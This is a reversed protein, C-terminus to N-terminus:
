RCMETDHPIHINNRGCFFQLQDMAAKKFKLLIKFFDGACRYITPLTITFNSYYGVKLKLTKADVFFEQTSM